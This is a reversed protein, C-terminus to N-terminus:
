GFILDYMHKWTEFKFVELANEEGVVGYGIMSGIMFSLIILAVFMFGFAKRNVKGSPKKKPKAKPEEKARAARSRTKYQQSDM